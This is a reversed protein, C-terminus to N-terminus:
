DRDDARKMIFTGVFIDIMDRKLCLGGFIRNNCRGDRGRRRRRWDLTDGWTLIIGTPMALEIYRM